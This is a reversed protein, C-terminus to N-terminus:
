MQAVIQTEEYEVLVSIPQVLYVITKATEDEIEITGGSTSENEEFYVKNPNTVSHTQHAGSEEGLMIEVASQAVGNTKEEFTLGSLPLGESLIQAGIDDTLVEVKTQWNMYNKSADDFFQKWEQKSIEKTMIEETEWTALGTGCGCLRCKREHKDALGEKTSPIWTL